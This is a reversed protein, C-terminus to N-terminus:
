AQSSIESHFNLTGPFAVHFIQLKSCLELALLSPSSNIFFHREMLKVPSPESFYHPVAIPPINVLEEKSIRQWTNLMLHSLWLFRPIQIKSSGQRHHVVLSPFWLEPFFKWVLVHSNSVLTSSALFRWYFPSMTGMCHKCGLLTRLHCSKASLHGRISTVESFFWLCLIGSFHDFNRTRVRYSNLWIVKPAIYIPLISSITM